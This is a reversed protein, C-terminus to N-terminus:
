QSKNLTHQHGHVCNRIRRNIKHATNGVRRRHWSRSAIFYARINMYFSSEIDNGNCQINRSAFWCNFAFLIMAMKIVFDIEFTLCKFQKGTSRRQSTPQNVTANGVAIILKFIRNLFHIHRRESQISHYKALAIRFSTYIQFEQCKRQAGNQTTSSMKPPFTLTIVILVTRGGTERGDVGGVQIMQRRSTLTINVHYKQFEIRKMAHTHM